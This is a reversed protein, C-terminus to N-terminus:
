NVSENMKRLVEEYSNKSLYYDPRNYFGLMDKHHQEIGDCVCTGDYLRGNKGVTANCGYIKFCEMFCNVSTNHQTYIVEYSRNCLLPNQANYEKAVWSDWNLYLFITLTIAISLFLYDLWTKKRKFFRIIFFDDDKM